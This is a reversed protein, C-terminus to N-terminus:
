NKTVNWFVPTSAKVLGTVNRRWVAPQEFQGALVLPITEWLRRQFAELAAKRAEPESARVLRDRLREAEEDCPWGAWNSGDCAMNTAINTLPHHNVVGNFYTVLVNWGPSGPGPADKKTQRVLITAFDNLQLDVNMGIAQMRQQAVQGMASIVSIEPTSMLVVKEGKYGSEALLQRAKDLDPKRYAESGVETGFPGGCLYFAYCPKWWKEDGIAARMFDAQDFALALAQRAKPNNFPPFLANPRVGAFNGWPQLREIAVDKSKALVPLLDIPAGDWFDIEGAAVAAAATNADPIVVLELRDIKVVKGGTHGDPPENRPVYAPNRTYVIKAGPSWESRQFVFPGSGIAETLGVAPDIKTDQERMVVPIMGAASGLAFEVYAFPENLVIKFTREGTAEIAAVFKSMKTGFTDRALWRRMSPVIDRSTVTQGDQFKLGPRLVFSYTIKDASVEYTEVMQPKIKLESDWAMLTDYVALAHLRLVPNANIHPDIVRLDNLPVIKLTKQPSQAWAGLPAALALLLVGLLRVSGGVAAAHSESM